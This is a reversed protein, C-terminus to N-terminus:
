CAAQDVYRVIDTNNIGLAYIYIYIYIYVCLSLSLIYLTTFSFAMCLLALKGMGIELTGEEMSINNQAVGM